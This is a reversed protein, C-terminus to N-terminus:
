STGMFITDCIDYYSGIIEVIEPKGGIVETIAETIMERMSISFYKYKTLSNENLYDDAIEFNCPNDDVSCFKIGGKKGTSHNRMFLNIISKKIEVGFSTNSLDLTDITSESFVQMIVMSLSNGALINDSLVLTRLKSKAFEKFANCCGDQAIVIRNSSFYFEKMKSKRVAIAVELFFEGLNNNSLNLKELESRGIIDFLEDVKKKQPASTFNSSFNVETLNSSRILESLVDVDDICNNSFDLKRLLKSKVVTGVFPYIEKQSQLNFNKSFGLGELSSEIVYQAIISSKSHLSNRSLDLIIIKSGIILTKAFDTFQADDLKGLGNSRFILEKINSKAVFTAIKIADDDAEVMNDSIDLTHIGSGAIIEIILVIKKNLGNNAINLIRVGSEVLASVIPIANECLNNSSLNLTHLFKFNAFSPAISGGYNSNIGYGGVNNGSLNLTHLNSTELMKVVSEVVKMGLGLNNRALNLVTIPNTNVVQALLLFANPTLDTCSSVDLMTKNELSRYLVGNKLLIAAGRLSGKDPLTFQGSLNDEASMVDLAAAMKNLEEVIEKTIKLYVNKPVQPKVDVIPKQILEEKKRNEKKGFMKSLFSTKKEKGKSM